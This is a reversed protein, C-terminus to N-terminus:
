NMRTQQIICIYINNFLSICLCVIYLFYIDKKRYENLSEIGCKLVSFCKSIQPFCHHWRVPFHLLKSSRPLPNVARLLSDLNAQRLSLKLLTFFFFLLLSFYGRLALVHVHMCTHTLFAWLQFDLTNTFLHFPLAQGSHRIFPFVLTPTEHRDSILRWSWGNSREVSTAAAHSSGTKGRDLLWRIM